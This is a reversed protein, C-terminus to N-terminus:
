GEKHFVKGNRITFRVKFYATVDQAPDASLIALDAKM